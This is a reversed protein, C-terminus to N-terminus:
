LGEQNYGKSSKADKFDPYDQKVDPKIGIPYVAVGDMYQYRMPKQEPFKPVPQLGLGKKLIWQIKKMEPRATYDQLNLMSLVDPLVEEPFVYEWLQIPRLAGQVQILEDKGTELNKRKWPFMHTQMFMKWVDICQNIGRTALILHM